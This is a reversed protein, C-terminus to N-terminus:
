DHEAAQETLIIIVSSFASSKVLAKVDTFAKEVQLDLDVHNQQSLHRM